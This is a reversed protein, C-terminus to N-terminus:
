VVSLSVFGSGLQSRKDSRVASTPLLQQADTQLELLDGLTLNLWMPQLRASLAAAHAIIACKYIHPAACALVDGQMLRGLIIVNTQDARRAGGDLDRLIGDVICPACPIRLTGDTCTGDVICPACPAQL